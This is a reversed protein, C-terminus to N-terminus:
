ITSIQAPIEDCNEEVSSKDKSKLFYLWIQWAQLGIPNEKYHRSKKHPKAEMDEMTGHLYMFGGCEAIVANEYAKLRKGADFSKEEVAKCFLEPYGGYFDIWVPKKSTKMM